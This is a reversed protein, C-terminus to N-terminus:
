HQHGKHPDPPPAVARPPPAVGALAAEIVAKMENVQQPWGSPHDPIAFRERNIFFTPSGGVQALTVLRQADLLKSIYKKEKVERNVREVDIGLTPLLKDIDQETPVNEMRLITEHYKWFVQESQAAIAEGVQAAYRGFKYNELDYYHSIFRIKNGYLKLISEVHLQAEHCHPCEYNSFEILLVKADRPGIAHGDNTDLQQVPFSLQAGIVPKPQTDYNAKDAIGLLLGAVGVIFYYTQGTKPVTANTISPVRLREWWALVVMSAIILASLLCYFCIKKILAFMVVDLYVTFVFAISILTLILNDLKARPIPHEVRARAVCLLALVAYGVTGVLSVPIGGIESFKSRQVVDCGGHPGCGAVNLRGIKPWLLHASVLVGLVALLFLAANIKRSRDSSSATTDM